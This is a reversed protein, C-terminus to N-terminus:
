CMVRVCHSSLSCLYMIILDIPTCDRELGYCYSFYSIHIWQQHNSLAVADLKEALFRSLIQWYQSLFYSFHQFRAFTRVHVCM